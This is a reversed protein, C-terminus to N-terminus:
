KSLIYAILDQISGLNYCGEFADEIPNSCKFNEEACPVRYINFCHDSTTEAFWLPGGYLLRINKILLKNHLHFNDTHVLVHTIGKDKFKLRFNENSIDEYLHIHLEHDDNTVEDLSIGKLSQAVILIKPKFNHEASFDTTKKQRIEQGFTDTVFSSTAVVLIFMLGIKLKAFM